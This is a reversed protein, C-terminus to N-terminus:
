NVPENATESVSPARKQVASSNTLVIILRRIVKISWICLEFKRLIQSDKRLLALITRVIYLKREPLNLVVMIALLLHRKM